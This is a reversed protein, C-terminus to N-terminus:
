ARLSHAQLSCLELIVAISEAVFFASSIISFSCIVYLLVRWATMVLSNISIIEPAAAKYDCPDDLSVDYRSQSVLLNVTEMSVKLAETLQKNFYFFISWFYVHCFNSVSTNFFLYFLIIILSTNFTHICITIFATYMLWSNCHKTKFNNSVPDQPNNLTSKNFIFEFYKTCM